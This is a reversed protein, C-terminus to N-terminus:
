KKGASDTASLIAPRGLATVGGALLAALLWQPPHFLLFWGYAPSLPKMMTIFVAAFTAIAWRRTSPTNEAARIFPLCPLLFILRYVFSNGLAFSGCYILAGSWFWALTRDDCEVAAFAAHKRWGRRSAVFLLALYFGLGVAPAVRDFRRLSDPSWTEEFFHNRFGTALVNSGYSAHYDRLSKQSVLRLEPVHTVGYLAFGALAAVFLGRRAGRSFVAGGALTIAPYLKLMGAVLMAVAAVTGRVPADPRPAWALSGFVLMFVVLETNGRELVLLVAPSVLLLAVIIAERRTRARLIWLSFILFAAELGLAAPVLPVQHLEVRATMLWIRPYNYPMENSLLPDVGGAHAAIGNWLVQLDNFPPWMIWDFWVKVYESLNRDSANIALATWLLLTVAVPLWRWARAPPNGPGAARVDGGHDEGAAIM